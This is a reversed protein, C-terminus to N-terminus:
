IPPNLLKTTDLEQSGMFQLGGPEETQPIRWALISSHTAMEEELPDRQGLSQVPDGANSASEKSVSGGPYPGDETICNLICELTMQNEDYQEILFPDWSDMIYIGSASDVVIVTFLLSDKIDSGSSDEALM